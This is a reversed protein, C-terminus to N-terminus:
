PSTNWMGPWPVLLAYDPPPELPLLRFAQSLYPGPRQSSVPSAASIPPYVFAGLGMLVWVWPRDGQRSSQPNGEAVVGLHAHSITPITREGTSSITPSM